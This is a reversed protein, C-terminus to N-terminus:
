QVTAARSRQVRRQPPATRARDADPEGQAMAGRMDCRRAALGGGTGPADSPSTPCPRSCEARQLTPAAGDIGRARQWAARLDARVRRRETHRYPPRVPVHRLRVRRRRHTRRRRHPLVGRQARRLYPGSQCPPGLPERSRLALRIGVATGQHDCDGTVAVTPGQGRCGDGSGIPVLHRSREQCPAGGMGCLRIGDELGTRV